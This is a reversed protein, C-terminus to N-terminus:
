SLKDKVEAYEEDSMDFLAAAEKEDATLKPAKGKGGGGGAGADIDPAPRTTLKGWNADLWGALDEPDYGTPVLSRNAEPIQEIRGKNREKISETLTDLRPKVQELEGELRNVEAEREKALREWEGAGELAKEKEKRRKASESNVEKLRKQLDANQQRLKALEDSANPDQAERGPDDNHADRGNEEQPDGGQELEDTPM